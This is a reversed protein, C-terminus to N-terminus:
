AHRDGAAVMRGSREFCSNKGIVQSEVRDAAHSARGSGEARAWGFLHAANEANVAMRLGGVEGIEAQMSQLVATLLARADDRAIALTQTSM